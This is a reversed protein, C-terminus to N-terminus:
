VNRIQDAEADDDAHDGHSNNRRQEPGLAPALVHFLVTVGGPGPGLPCDPCDRQAVADDCSVTYTEQIADFCQVECESSVAACSNPGESDDCAAALLICAIASAFRISDRARSSHPIPRNKTHRASM